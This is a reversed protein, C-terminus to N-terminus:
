VEMLMKQITIIETDFSGLAVFQGDPGYVRALDGEQADCRLMCSRPIEQGYIMKQIGIGDLQITRYHTLVRDMPILFSTNGQTYMWRIEDLTYSDQITFQGTKTRLLYALHAYAGSLLGADHCLTRVYTGKSCNVRFLYRNEGMQSLLEAHRIQIPRKPMEVERGLRALEYLKKGHYKIASYAPPTQEHYEMMGQIYGKAEELGVIRDSRAVVKGQADQTDTACGFAIEGIYEKEGEVLYDFLKTAKGLFVPLVGSAAPDLTGAHGVKKQDLCKKIAGVVNNSTM